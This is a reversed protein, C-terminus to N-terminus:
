KVEEQEEEEEEQEEVKCSINVQEQQTNETEMDFLNMNVEEITDEKNPKKYETTNTEGENYIVNVCLTNRVMSMQLDKVNGACEVKDISKQKFNINTITLM